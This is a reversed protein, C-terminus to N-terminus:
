LIRFNLGIIAVGIPLTQNGGSPINKFKLYFDIESKPKSTYSVVTKILTKQSSSDKISVKRNNDSIRIKNEPKFFIKSIVNKVYLIKVSM